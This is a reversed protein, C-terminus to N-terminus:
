ISSDLYKEHRIDTAKDTFLVGDLHDMEHQFVRALLGWARMKVKKGKSDQAEIEVEIPREVLGLTEPISLCGEEMKSTEKSIKKIKPNFVAYFKPKGDHGELQAIFFRHPLGVQNASLGIGKAKIMLSRMKKLLDRLEAVSISTPDFDKTKTRLFKEETKNGTTYHKLNEM